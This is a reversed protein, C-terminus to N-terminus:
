NPCNNKLVKGLKKRVKELKEWSKRIKGLESMVSVNLFTSPNTGTPLFLGVFHCM